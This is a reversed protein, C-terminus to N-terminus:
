MSTAPKRPFKIRKSDFEYSTSYIEDLNAHENTFNEDMTIVMDFEQFLRLSFTKFPITIM